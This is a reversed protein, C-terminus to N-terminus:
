RWLDVGGARIPGVQRRGVPGVGENNAVARWYAHGEETGHWTFMNVAGHYSVALIPKTPVYNAQRGIIRNRLVNMLRKRAILDPTTRYWEWLTRPM